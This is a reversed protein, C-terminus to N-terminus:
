DLVRAVKEAIEFAELAKEVGGCSGIFEAAAIINEISADATNTSHRQQQSKKLKLKISSVYPGTVKYKKLANAVESPSANPHKALYDQIMATKNAKKQKAMSATEDKEKWSETVCERAGSAL